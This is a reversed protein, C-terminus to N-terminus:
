AAGESYVCAALADKTIEEGFLEHQLRGNNLVIVRDAMEVLQEYDSTACLVAMGDVVAARILRFIERRAGIDVGQTPENLLMVMPATDLWKGLLAKQQNGGSLNGFAMNVNPPVVNLRRCIESAHQRLRSWSIRWGRAHNQIFPLALNEVVTLEQAGGEAKRDAPILVVRNSMLEAPSPRDIVRGEVIISGSRLKRAGFLLEPLEEFGSGALGTVGVVEGSRLHITLDTVRDGSIDVASLLPVREEHVVAGERPVHEDRAGLIMQVIGERTSEATVRSGVLEGDRLVTVRDTAALVEDLDHSVLLVSDGRVKLRQLLSFLVEVEDGPLFVTPEDLVLVRATRDGGDGRAEQGGVARVVAVMARQVPTLTRIMALPDVDVEFRELLAQAREKEEHWAIRRFGTAAGYSDLAMHELVTSEPLLGLDQHVFAMGYDRLGRVGLPMPIEVGNIFVRGGDAEHFGALIKILTSKGSGNAGVLGHVEGRAIEFDLERLAPVGNFFKSLGMVQLLPIGTPVGEAGGGPEGLRGFRM